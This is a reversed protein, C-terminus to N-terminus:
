LTEERGLYNNIELDDHIDSYFKIGSRFGQNYAEHLKKCWKVPVDECKDYTINCYGLKSRLACDTKNKYM